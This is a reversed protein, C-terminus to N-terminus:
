EYFAVESRGLLLVTYLTCIYIYTHIYTHTYAICDDCPRVLGRISCYQMQCFMKNSVISLGINCKLAFDWDVLVSTSYKSLTTRCSLTDIRETVTM